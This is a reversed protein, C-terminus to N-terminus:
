WFEVVEFVALPVAVTSRRWRPSYRVSVSILPRRMGVPSAHDVTPSMLKMGAASTLRMSMRVPPAEETYPASAMAPTTLKM